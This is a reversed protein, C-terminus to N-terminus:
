VQKVLDLEFPNGQRGSNNFGNRFRQEAKTDTQDQAEQSLSNAWENHQAAHKVGDTIYASVLERVLNEHIHLVRLFSTLDDMIVRNIVSSYLQRIKGIRCLRGLGFVNKLGCCLQPFIDSVECKSILFLHRAISPM